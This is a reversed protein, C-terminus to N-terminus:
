GVPHACRCCRWFSCLGHDHRCERRDAGSGGTLTDSGDGGNITDAGSGGTITDAGTSGTIVFGETQGTMDVSAAGTLTVNEIGVVKGDTAFAHTGTSISIADTGGGGDMTDGDAEATVNVQFTDNGGAGNLIDNDDNGIFTDNGEDGTFTDVGVGGTYTDGVAIVTITSTNTVSNADGDNVVVEVSRAASDITLIVANDYQVSQLISEYIAKTASGSILLVGTGSTYSVSLGAGSAATAAAGTLSLSENADGNPRNTLTVTM